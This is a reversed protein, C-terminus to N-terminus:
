AKQKMTWALTRRGVYISTLIAAVVSVLLMLVIVVGPVDLLNPDPFWFLAIIAVLMFWGYCTAVFMVGGYFLGTMIAGVITALGPTEGQPEEVDPPRYPDTSSENLM